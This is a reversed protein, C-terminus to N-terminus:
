FGLIWEEKRCCRVSEKKRWGSSDFKHKTECVKKLWIMVMREDEHISAHDVNYKRCCITGMSVGELEDRM